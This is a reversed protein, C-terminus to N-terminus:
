SRVLEVVDRKSSDGLREDDGGGGLDIDGSDLEGLSEGIRVELSSVSLNLLLALLGVDECGSVLLVLYTINGSKLVNYQKFGLIDLSVVHYNM